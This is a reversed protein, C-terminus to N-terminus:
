SLEGTLLSMDAAGLEAIQARADSSLGTLAFRKGAARWSASAVALTQLAHAGFLTVGAADLEVDKDTADALNHALAIAAASDLRAPLAVVITM